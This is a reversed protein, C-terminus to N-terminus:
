ANRAHQTDVRELVREPPRAIFAHRGTDLVPRQMLAPERVLLEVVRERDLPTAAAARHEAFLDDGTRVLAEANEDLRDILEALTAADPPTDLYNVIEVTVGADLPEAPVPDRWRADGTPAQAYRIGRWVRIGGALEEGAFRGAPAAAVPTEDM